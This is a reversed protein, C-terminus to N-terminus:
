ASGTRIPTGPQPRHHERSAKTIPLLVMLVGAILLLLGAIALGTAIRTLGPATAAGDGTVAIGPTADSNMVVLTWNGDSPTWTM